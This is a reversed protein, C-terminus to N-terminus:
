LRRTLPPTQRDRSRLSAFASPPQHPPVYPGGMRRRPAPACSRDAGEPPPPRPHLTPPPAQPPVGSDGGAPTILPAGPPDEGRYVCAVEEGRKIWLSARPAAVKTAHRVHDHVAIADAVA